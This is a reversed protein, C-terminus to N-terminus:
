LMLLLRGNCLFDLLRFLLPFSCLACSCSSQGRLVADMEVQFVLSLEIVIRDLVVESEAYFVLQAKRFCSAEAQLVAAARAADEREEAVEADEICQM